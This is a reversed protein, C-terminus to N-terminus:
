SVGYVGARTWPIENSSTRSFLLQFLQLSGGRFGAISGALYLRWMRVFREGFQEELEPVHGEFRLLWHELTRAYHLRLNEADLVALGHPELIKVMERFTPTYAGPFINKEIWPNLPAPQARGISHLFARGHPELCADIVRGLVKYHTPGVHELMGVSVFADYRGRLNRYDDEVFEVRGVLGLGKARERAWVIQESSINFARVRCGYQSAMHLALSGWGCGAEVVREGPRLRLKRCVHDLKALQAEELSAEPTPFYACTYVMREDLWRAYFDSGLDYHHQIHSRSGRRTNPRLMRTALQAVTWEWSRGPASRFALELLRPLDGEVRLRGAAYADGFGHEPQLVLSWLTARDEVVLRALAGGTSSGFTEGNWLAFEIPPHGRVALLRRLLWRDSARVTM